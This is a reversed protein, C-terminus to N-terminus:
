HLVISITASVHLPTRGTEDRDFPSALRRQFLSRIGAVNGNSCFDFILADRSITRFTRLSHSRTDFMKASVFQFGFRTLWPAPIITFITELEHWTSSESVDEYSQRHVIKTSYYVTGFISKYIKFYGRVSRKAYRKRPSASQSRSYCRSSNTATATAPRDLDDRSDNSSTPNLGAVAIEQPTPVIRCLERRIASDQLAEHVIETIAHKLVNHIFPQALSDSTSCSSQVIQDIGLHIKTVHQEIHRQSAIVTNISNQQYALNDQVREVHETVKSVSERTAQQTRINSMGTTLLTM